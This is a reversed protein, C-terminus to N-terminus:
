VDDEVVLAGRTEEFLHVAKRYDNVVMRIVPPRGYRPKIAYINISTQDWDSGSPGPM